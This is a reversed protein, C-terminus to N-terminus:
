SPQDDVVTYPEGAVVPGDVKKKRKYIKEERDQIIEM